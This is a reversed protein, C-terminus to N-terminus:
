LVYMLNMISYLGLYVLLSRRAGISHFSNTKANGIHIPRSTTEPKSSDLLQNMTWNGSRYKATVWMLQSSAKHFCYGTKGGM